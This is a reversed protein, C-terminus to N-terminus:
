FELLRALREELVDLSFRARAVAFNHEVMEHQRDPDALLARVARATEATPAGDIEIAKLGTPAIDRVYVPYRNIMFPKRYFITELLANGFGEIASPYTVFDAHVYADWLAYVKQGDRVSRCDDLRDGIWRVQADLGAEAIRALLFAQYDDPEDGVTGTLVLKYRPDDLLRVLEVAREIAKRRVVRTPQLIVVDDPALDFAARFDANFADVQPPAADFDWVNPILTAELGYRARLSEVQATNIVSHRLNPLDHPPFADRLIAGIGNVAYRDREWYFDHHHALAPMGTEALYERIAVGLPIHMPITLANEPILVHINYEAVFAAIEAKLHDAMRRIRAHLEPHGDARGFAQDHIWTAEPYRFHMEAVLRGPPASPELQGACYFTEHGLRRCVTVWKLAELSVGDVGDLRTAIFGVNLAHGNRAPSRRAQFGAIPQEALATAAPASTPDTPPPEDPPADTTSPDDTITLTPAM